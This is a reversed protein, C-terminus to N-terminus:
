SMPQWHANADSNVDIAVLSNLYKKRISILPKHDTDATFTPLGYVYSHFKGCGFLLGLTEREIQAYCQETATMSRSAYAVTAMQGWADTATCSGLWRKLCGYLDKNTKIPCLIHPSARYNCNKLKRWEKEHRATWEFVTNHQLLERLCTTNSNLNPFNGLFNIMGMARLVGKKDTPAPM